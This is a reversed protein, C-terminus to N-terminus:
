KIIGLTVDSGTHLITCLCIARTGPAFMRSNGNDVVTGYFLNKNGRADFESTSLLVCTNKLVPSEDLYVLSGTEIQHWTAEIGDCYTIVNCVNHAYVGGSEWLVVVENKRKELIMEWEARTLKHKKMTVGNKSIVVTSVM